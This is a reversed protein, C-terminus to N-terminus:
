RAPSASAPAPTHTRPAASLSKPNPDPDPVPLQLSSVPSQYSGSAQVTDSLQCSISITQYSVASTQRGRRLGCSRGRAAPIRWISRGTAVRASRAAAWRRPGNQVAPVHRARAPAPSSWTANASRSASHHSATSPAPWRANISRRGYRVVGGAREARQIGSRLTWADRSDGGAADVTAAAAEPARPRIPAAPEPAAVAISGPSPLASASLPVAEVAPAKVTPLSEDRAPRAGPDPRTGADSAPASTTTTPAPRASLPANAIESGSVRDPRIARVRLRRLRARRAGPTSRRLPQRLQRRQQLM